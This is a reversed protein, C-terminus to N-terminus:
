APTKAPWKGQAILRAKLREMYSRWSDPHADPLFVVHKPMFRSLDDRELGRRLFDDVGKMTQLFDPQNVPTEVHEPREPNPKSRRRPAPAALGGVAAQLQGDLANLNFMFDMQGSTPANAM